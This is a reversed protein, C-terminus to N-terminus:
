IRKILQLSEIDEARVKSMTYPKDDPTFEKKLEIDFYKSICKVKVKTKLDKKYQSESKILYKSWSDEKPEYKFKLGINKYIKLVDINQIDYDVIFGNEGDKFGIELFAPCPTAIVPIGLTLAEAITYGYGEGKNSLQVLYDANAIYNTIDLRPKMYVINPNDIANIDDTFVTWLYPINNEELLKAFKIMRGKGKENTLRTASILNLVKKPKDIVIPNYCLECDYGTYKKFSDCVIQTVGIYKTIKPNVKFEMKQEMYDTHIVQIYEKAKINEAIDTTYNFFAKECIIKEGHYEKVRVYKKLREIQKKDGREYYVTLDLDQYKKCLYYLFSETGGISNFNYIYFINHM